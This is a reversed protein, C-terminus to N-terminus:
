RKNAPKPSAFEDAGSRTASDPVQLADPMVARWGEIRGLARAYRIRALAPNCLILAHLSGLCPLVVHGALTLFGFGHLRLVRGMGRGYARAREVSGLEQPAPPLPHHVRLRTEHWISHGAKLARLLYDTEEGSQFPTPAGLGLSSDFDGVAAVLGRRVFMTASVGRSWVTRRSILGSRRSLAGAALRGQEDTCRCTLGAWSPEALLREYVTALLRPPYWCDDDPFALLQGRAASIGTNRAISLGRRSRLHVIELHSRFSSLIDSLRDDNNQDVVIVESLPADADKLSQLLRQLGPAPGLTAVILSFIQSESHRVIM